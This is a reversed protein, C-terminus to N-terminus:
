RPTWTQTSPDFRWARAQAATAPWPRRALEAPTLVWVDLLNGSTDLTYHVPLKAGALTGSVQVLNRQDRIRAGPALRAPQGNLRVQPHPEVVLEGRLATAPFNRPAQAAAPAVALLTLLAAALRGPLAARRAASLDRCLM